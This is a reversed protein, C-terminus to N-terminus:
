EHSAGCHINLLTGVILRETMCFMFMLDIVDTVSLVDKDHPLTCYDTDHFLYSVQLMGIDKVVVFESHSIFFTGCIINSSSLPV